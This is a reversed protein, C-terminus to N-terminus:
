YEHKDIDLILILFGDRTCFIWPTNRCDKTTWANYIGEKISLMVYQLKSRDQRRSKHKVNDDVEQTKAMIPCGIIVYSIPTKKVFASKAQLQRKM